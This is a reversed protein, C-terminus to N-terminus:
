PLPPTVICCCGCPNFRPSYACWRPDFARQKGCSAAAQRLVRCARVQALTQPIFAQMFVNAAVQSEASPRAPRSAARDLMADLYERVSVTVAQAAELGEKAESVGEREPATGLMLQPAVVFEFLERPTMCLLGRRSFYDTMNKSDMRLFDLARPHEVDVSQSVDIFVAKAKEGKM